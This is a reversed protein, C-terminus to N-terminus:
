RRVRLELLVGEDEKGRVGLEAGVGLEDVQRPQLLDVVSTVTEQLDIGAVGSGAGYGVAVHHPDEVVTALHFHPSAEGLRHLGTDDIAVLPAPVRDPDLVVDLTM